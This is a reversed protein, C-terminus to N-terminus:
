RIVNLRAAEIWVDENTPCHKCGKAILYRAKGLKGAVEQMRAAAIWGPAHNPNTQIVSNMLLEAKKIDGIESETLTQVTSLSTLYGKPDVSTANGDTAVASAMQDLNVRLLQGRAQGISAFDTPIPTEATTNLTTTTTQARNSLLISDSV